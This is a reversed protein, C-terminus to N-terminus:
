LGNMAYTYAQKFKQKCRSRQNKVVDASNYGMLMAIEDGSLKKGTGNFYTYTFIDKCPFGMNDVIARVKAFREEDNFEPDIYLSELPNDNMKGSNILEFDFGPDNDDLATNDISYFEVYKIDARQMEFLTRKGIAMLYTALSAKLHNISGDKSRIYIKGSNVFMKGVMIQHYIKLCTNQYLDDLNLGSCEPRFYNFFKDHNRAYFSTFERDDGNYIKEVFRSDDNFLGM